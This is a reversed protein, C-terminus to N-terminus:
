SIQGRPSTGEHTSGVGWGWRDGSGDRGPGVAARAEHLLRPVIGEGPEGGLFDGDDASEPDVDHGGEAGQAVGDDAAFHVGFQEETPDFFVGGVDALNPWLFPLRLILSSSQLIFLLASRPQVVDSGAKKM